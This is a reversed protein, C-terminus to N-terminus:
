YDSNIQISMFVQNKSIITEVVVHMFHTAGGSFRDQPYRPSVFEAQM